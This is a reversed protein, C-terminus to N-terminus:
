LVADPIDTARKTREAHAALLAPHTAEQRHVLSYFCRLDKRNFVAPLSAGPHRAIREASYVLRDRRSDLGLQVGGFNDLAWQAAEPFLTATMRGRRDKERM